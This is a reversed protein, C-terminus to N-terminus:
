AKDARRLIPPLAPLRTLKQPLSEARREGDALAPFLEGAPRARSFLFGQAEHCGEAKLYALDEQREVGEANVRMGLSAGLSVVARVIARCDARASLGRVFSQDIKIKTFPFSSLYSLSSYGTGFDDLSVGVGLNRLSTLTRLTREDRQMILAETIELDLRAPTLGSQALAQTVVQLVDGTKFQAPSLNVAVKVHGPWRAADECARRLVFQGIQGILGADEAMPIFEAPSIDGRERHRWRVLAECGCMKLTKIDIQPQYHVDLAGESLAARLDAELKQRAQLAEDMEPAFFQFGGRGKAKAAYLALDAARLLREADHGDRPAMAVGVSAGSTVVHGDIDFPRRLEQVIREALRAAMTQSVAGGVVIAFEDGGLRAALDDVRLCAEIRRAAQQLLLDGVSHGLTDNVGKFNDLDFL